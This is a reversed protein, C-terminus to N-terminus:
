QLQNSSQLKPAMTPNSTESLKFFIDFEAEMSGSKFMTSSDSLRVLVKNSAYQSKKILSLSFSSSESTKPLPVTVPFLQVIANNCLSM